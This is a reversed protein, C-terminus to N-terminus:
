RDRLRLALEGAARMVEVPANVGSMLRVQEAAQEVLLDLGGLVRGGAAEWAAAAPTPWPAYVVDFWLGRPSAHTLGPVLDDTAGAPVCSVVLEGTVAGSADSWPRVHVRIGCKDAVQRVNWVAEPRRAVLIVETVDLEALGALASCATAGAGLLWVDGRIARLGARYLSLVFGQVDTNAAVWRGDAGFLLTNAADVTEVIGDTAAAMPVVARKLPMTLSVGALGEEDLKLLTSELSDEDCEIARYRWGVLGVADYAAQHLAPSLSHAIPSGLVAAGIRLRSM